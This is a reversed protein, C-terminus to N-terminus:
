SKSESTTSPSSPDCRTRVKPPSRSVNSKVSGSFKRRTSSSTQDNEGGGPQGAIWPSEPSVLGGERKTRPAANAILWTSTVSSGATSCALSWRILLRSMGLPDTREFSPDEISCM